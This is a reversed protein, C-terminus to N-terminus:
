SKAAEAKRIRMTQAAVGLYDGGSSWMQVTAHGLQETLADFQVDLLVWEGASYRDLRAAIRMSSDLTIGYYGQGFIPAVASPPHDAVATLIAASMAGGVGVCRVWLQARNAGRAADEDAFRVELTDTVGGPTYNLSERRRSEEPPRRPAFATAPRVGEPFAGLTGQALVATEGNHVGAATALSVAKGGGRLQARVELVDNEKLGQLYLASVSLLPKGAVKEMAEVAAGLLAGGFLGNWSCWRREAPMLFRGPEGGDRLRMSGPLPPEPLPQRASDSM